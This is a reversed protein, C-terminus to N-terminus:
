EVAQGTEYTWLVRLSAPLASSAVGTLAPTNRFQPWAPPSPVQAVLPVSLVLLPVLRRMTM